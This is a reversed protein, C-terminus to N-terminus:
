KVQHKEANLLALVSFYHKIKYRLVNNESIGIFFSQSFAEGFKKWKEKIQFHCICCNGFFSFFLFLFSVHKTSGIQTRILRRLHKNKEKEKQGRTLVSQRSWPVEIIGNEETRSYSIVYPKINLYLWTCFYWNDQTNLNFM